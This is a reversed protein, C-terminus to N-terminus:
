LDDPDVGAIKLLHVLLGRKLPQNGHIPISIREARGEKRYVHHSGDIRALESGHKELLRAFEKGSLPECPSRSWAPDVTPRPSKSM